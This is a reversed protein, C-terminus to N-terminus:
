QFRSKWSNLAHKCAGKKDPCAQLYQVKSTGFASTRLRFASFCARFAWKNATESKRSKLRVEAHARDFALWVTANGVQFLPVDLAQYLCGAWFAFGSGSVSGAAALAM